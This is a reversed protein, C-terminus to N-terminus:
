KDLQRRRTRSDDFVPLSMFSAGLQVLPGGCVAGVEFHSVDKGFCGSYLRLVRTNYDACDVEKRDLPEPLM